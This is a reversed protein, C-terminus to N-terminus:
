GGLGPAQDHPVESRPAEADTSGLTAVVPDAILPLKGALWLDAAIQGLAKALDLPADPYRWVLPQFRIRRQQRTGTM